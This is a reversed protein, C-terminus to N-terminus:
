QNITFIDIITKNCKKHRYINVFTPINKKKCPVVCGLVHNTVPILLVRLVGEGIMRATASTTM